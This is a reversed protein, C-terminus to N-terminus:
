KDDEKKNNSIKVELLLSRLLEASDQTKSILADIRDDKAKMLKEYLKDKAELQKGFTRQQFIIIWVLVAWSGINQLTDLSAISLFDMKLVNYLTFCNISSDGYYGM